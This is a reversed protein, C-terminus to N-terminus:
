LTNMVMKEALHVSIIKTLEGIQRRNQKSWYRKERCSVYSVAGAYEGEWYMAAYIVTKAGGQMLLQAGEKSYRSLNDYQLVATDYEDYSHFLTLFDAKTFRSSEMLVAEVDEATWQYQRTCKNEHIDTRIVTIRDLRFNTGIIKLMMDVACDFSSMKQFIEFATSVIDSHLYRANMNSYISKKEASPRQFRKLTDCFTYGNKGKEKARYLAWDANEFLQNYTYGSVNQPLFCVGASCTISYSDKNFNIERVSKILHMSKNALADRSIDKVFVVFEDGGARMVIDQKRFVMELLHALEVLVKDGFLHGYTDNANKFYDIDIVMLGCSEYPNKHNLYENILKKGFYYNYLGTLLDRKAQDELIKETKKEITVDRVSGILTGIEESEDCLEAIDLHKQLIAGRDGIVRIEIGCTLRRQFFALIKWKDEPYIKADKELYSLYNEIECDPDLNENYVILRDKAPLYEFISLGGSKLIAAIKKLNM